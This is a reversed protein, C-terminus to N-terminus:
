ADGARPRRDAEGVFSGSKFGCWRVGSTLAASTSNRFASVPSGMTCCSVMSVEAGGGMGLASRAVRRLRGGASAPASPVQSRNGVSASLAGSNLDVCQPEVGARSNREGM